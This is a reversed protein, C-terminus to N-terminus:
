KGAPEFFPLFVKHFSSFYCSSTCIRAYLTSSALMKKALITLVEISQLNRPRQRCNALGAQRMNDIFALITRVFRSIYNIRLKSIHSRFKSIEFERQPFLFFYTTKSNLNFREYRGRAIITFLYFRRTVISDVRRDM